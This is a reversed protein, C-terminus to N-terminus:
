RVNVGLVFYLVVDLDGRLFTDERKSKSEKEEQPKSFIQFAQEDSLSRLADRLSVDSRRQQEKTKIDSTAV